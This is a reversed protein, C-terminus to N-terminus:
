AVPAPARLATELEALEDLDVLGGLHDDAQRTLGALRTAEKRQEDTVRGERLRRLMLDVSLGIKDAVDQPEDDEDYVGVGDWDNYGEAWSLYGAWMRLNSEVGSLDPEDDSM